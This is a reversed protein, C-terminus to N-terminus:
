SGEYITTDRVIEYRIAIASVKDSHIDFLWNYNEDYGSIVIANAGLKGAEERAKKLMDTQDTFGNADGSMNIVALREYRITDSMLEIIDVLVTVQEPPVPAYETQVLRTVKATVCGTALVTVAVLRLRRM